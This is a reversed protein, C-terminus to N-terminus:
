ERDIANDVEGVEEKVTIFKKVGWVLPGMFVFSAILLIWWKQTPSWGFNDVSFNASAVEVDLSLIILESKGEPVFEIFARYFGKEPFAVPLTYEYVRGTADTHGDEVGGHAHATEVFNFGHHGDSNDHEPEAPAPDHHGDSNDHDLGGHDEIIVDFSTAGPYTYIQRTNDSKVFTIMLPNPHNESLVVGNQEDDFLSLTIEQKRGAKFRDSKASVSYNTPPVVTEYTFTQSSGQAGSNQAHTSDETSAPISARYEDGPAYGTEDEVRFSMMMGAHLHESIHCHGMWEGPNSMDVLIDVVEGPFVLVTDKWAMNTSPVGNESLVVFRQGHLHMPHQMVHDANQDNTLRLKVLDGVRYTWHIDMNVDGTNQDVLKWTITKTTNTRDSQNLDDWQITDLRNGTEASHAHQSHDVAPAAEADHAHQSHDVAQDELDITFLLHEDPEANLYNRFGAFESMVDDHTHLTSFDNAFSSVISDESVVFRTLETETDPTKNILKFVGSEAFHVEIVMREAPSLLFSDVYEEREFRGSDAGVLKMKAGPITLNYTRVNSVNTILFRIVEDKKATLTYDKEGNVLYENGFRGLLAFTTLERYFDVIEDNEILIDDLVLPVERNVRSAYGEDVPDVLYNGYLGLEQGYDDRTHPHYWFAGEDDFKLTYTFSEGPNLTDQTVGPVGDSNNDVRVGHSHITQDLDTKNTFDITIEAGEKVKIFPGPISRNYAMMRLTRNGVKKQVYEATIAYSDGDELIIMEPVVASPLGALSKDFPTGPVVVPQSTVMSGDTLMITGDPMVHAGELVQGTADMITGDPMAHIGQPRADADHHGDSNDHEAAGHEDANPNTAKLLFNTPMFYIFVLVLSLSIIIFYNRQMGLIKVEYDRAVPDKYVGTEGYGVKKAAARRQKKLATIETKLTELDISPDLGDINATAEIQTRDNELMDMRHEIRKLAFAPSNLMNRRKRFYWWWIPIIWLLVLFWSGWALPLGFLGTGTELGHVHAVDTGLTDNVIGTIKSEQTIVELAGHIGSNVWWDHSFLGLTLIFGAVFVMAWGTVREVAAKRTMLWNLGNVGLIAMFALLLLPLIRGIAHVLFMLWGYLLDGSSAIEILILPTAPHPCGVGVNGLFLGLLFAKIVDQRKQIATPAAGSYTPMHLNILGLEGLAFLFAFIGAVFYVWNKISELDSGLADIAIGGLLAAAIGYLSLTTAIGIGFALAMGLGKILGRGMSLPVIVFALPLTCPMVIMTLGTAFSFLFWGVSGNPVSPALVFLYLVGFIIAAFVGVAGFILWSRAKSDTTSAAQPTAKTTSSVLKEAAM